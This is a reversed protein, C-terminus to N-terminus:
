ERKISTSRVLIGEVSILKNIDDSRIKRLQIIRPVSTIRVHVRNVELQYDPDREVIYDMLKREILPIVNQM